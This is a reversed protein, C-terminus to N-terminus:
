ASKRVAVAVGSAWQLPAMHFRTDAALRKLLVPVKEAHGNPWNPQPLLDDIVYFGGPRVVALAEDLVEYKGPMADAFVLDFSKESQKRLFEAGDEVILALRPDAGLAERAVAQVREDTDVSVLTSTADMGSLLWATAVGTGTGLELLRGAPKSAALTRLLAGIRPESAMTFGLEDTRAQIKALFQPTQIYSLDEM